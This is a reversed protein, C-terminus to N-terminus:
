AQKRRVRVRRRGPVLRLNTRRCDQTDKSIFRVEADLINWGSRAAVHRHLLEMTQYGRSGRHSRAVYGGSLHWSHKLVSEVDEADILALFEGNSKRLEYAGDHQKSPVVENKKVPM